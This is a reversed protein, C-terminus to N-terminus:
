NRDTVMEDYAIRAIRAIAEIAATEDALGKCMAVMIFDRVPTYVIGADHMVGSINGTKHAIAIGSPKGAVDDTPQPLYKPIMENLMQQKLIALIRESVLWSHVKGEGLLRFLHAMDRPSTTSRRPYPNPVVMLKGSSYTDKLGLNEITQNIREVGLLDVLVNTATNDSQIIMLTALDRVSYERRTLFQIVGAGGVIDDSTVTIVEDLSFEKQYNRIMLDVLIPVKILSASPFVEDANFTFTKTGAFDEIQIGITGVLSNIIELIKEQM